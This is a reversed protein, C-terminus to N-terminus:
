LTGLPYGTARGVIAVCEPKVIISRRRDLGKSNMKTAISEDTDIFWGPFYILFSSLFSRDRSRGCSEWLVPPM